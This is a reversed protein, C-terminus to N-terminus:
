DHYLRTHSRNPDESNEVAGLTRLTAKQAETLGTVGTINMREYPRDLRLTRLCEGTQVDWLKITEDDSGSALTHGDPSFAVSEVQNAHGHLTKLCQGTSVDWLRVTEDSSSSALTRGDPSFAVSWVWGTHGQLTNLCQGASIDWLRVTEDRSSSALTRGDPSFVVSRVYDTHGHLTNLCQGTSVDWLRVTRGEGGSALTRGDPSFAVSEVPNAHGHLTNLCQGTSVDWLRVTADRSASALTRGDPSFAASRVLKTHGRLTKLCQGTSVHWLRLTWDESGSALTRGDPSFVVPWVWGTHGELTSFCQSTSVDWLRVTHDDSGSALTRGDPSFAVERVRRTHGQLTRLCQSTSVDWLRVTQDDSGSLLTRGDPSFAVSWVWGTHGQLTNLCQGTSVDWLRVTHDDSSSALRRGDPSFAVSKVRRRHEESIWLCEGTSVDWLRVTRDESGSALTRGDPSFAVSRVWDTHGHLTSLCQGTSVDWLWVTADGSGSAITGGDPSFAASRVLKTHGRLTKLCEGTSADWMRVTQDDSGSVLTRGDPSFAVSRIRGTHEELIRLCQGTSVDWLRVTRDEGGSALTRGDPSFAVSRVVSDTDGEWSLIHEGDAVQWLRIEGSATGAAALKGNPGLAVSLITVFPETFVCTALRSYAFNVDHLVAGQLYAQWVTLNSFDYGSLDSRLQLLLNLVNGGGYGPALRSEKRLASLIRILKDEVDERSSTALLRDALPKLILRVQSNRLYDKAQAKILTHSMFLAIAEADIEEYVQEILKHTVYELVVPQLTFLAASTEVLSRDHLSELAELLQRHSVPLVIDEVLSESPVAEREIALWFMVDRELRSLRDFQENLLDSIRGFVTAGRALFQTIDGGCQRQIIPPVIRLALPNGKYHDILDASAEKTGRLGKDRLIKRGATLGLGRLLRSRVPGARSELLAIERPKERSTLVLCSQHATEGVRQIVQGYGEYGERYHGARDGGRLIAEVNDLVLLCRHKRLYKVLLSARSDLSEPLETERQDSLFRICDRLVDDLPPANRLDRWFLRDFQERIQEAVRKVLSSKGVAGIGLTAVVRCDHDVVWRKLKALERKRGYLVPVDIAQGWDEGPSAGLATLLRTWAIDRWEPHTFDVWTLLSIFPPIECAQLLLPVTRRRLGTPDDTRSLLTEFLTWESAVWAPTMVLLTHRSSLVADQMNLLSAKGALFDRIDICVRLGAKELRPLLTNIVWAQDDHSYSVFVDYKFRPRETMTMKM